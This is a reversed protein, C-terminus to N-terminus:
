LLKEFTDKIYTPVDDWNNEARESPRVYYHINGFDIESLDSGWQPMPRKKFHALAKLRYELMWAPENKRRSIQEVIARNLGKDSKFLYDEEDHFGFKYDQEQPNLLATDPM